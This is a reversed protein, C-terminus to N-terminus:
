KLAGLLLSRYIRAKLSDPRDLKLRKLLLEQEKSANILMGRILMASKQALSADKIGHLIIVLEREQDDFDSGFPFPRFVDEKDKFFGKVKSPYNNTFASPIEYDTPLKKARKAQRMLASQFRSDCINLMAKVVEQDTKGRLQAIGYESVVIDRLHRPITVPGDNFVINSCANGASTRTSKCL